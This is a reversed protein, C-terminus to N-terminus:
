GPPACPTPPSRRRSSPSGSPAPPSAPSSRRASGRQELVGAHGGPTTLRTKPTGASIESYRIGCGTIRLTVKVPEVGTPLCSAASAPWCMFRMVISSPPWAGTCPTRRRRCRARGGLQEGADLEAVGALHADRRRAEEHLFADVVRKTSAKTAALPLPSPRCRAPRRWWAHPRQGVRAPELRHLRKTSSATLWRRAARRRRCACRRRAAVEELRGHEGVHRVLALTIFSSGNPGIAAM